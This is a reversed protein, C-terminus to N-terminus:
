RTPRAVAVAVARRGTMSTILEGNGPRHFKMGNLHKTSLPMQWSISCCSLFFLDFSSAHLSRRERDGTFGSIFAVDEVKMVVAGHPGHRDPRLDPADVDAFM